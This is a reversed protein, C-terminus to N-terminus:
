YVRVTGKSPLASSSSAGNRGRDNKDAAEKNAKYEIRNQEFNPDNLYEELSSALSVPAQCTILRHLGYPEVMSVHKLNPIPVNLLNQLKKAVGLYEMVRETQNCFNRYIGLADKADYKSMEFYHEAATNTSFPTSADDVQGPRQHCGRQM